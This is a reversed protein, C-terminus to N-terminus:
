KAESEDYNDDDLDKIPYINYLSDVYLSNSFIRGDYYLTWRALHKASDIFRFIDSKNFIYSNDPKKEIKVKLISTECWGTIIMTDNRITITNPKKEKQDNFANPLRQVIYGSDTDSLEIWTAEYVKKETNLQYNHYQQLTDQKTLLPLLINNNATLNAVNILIICIVLYFYAKRM